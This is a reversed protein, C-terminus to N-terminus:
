IEKTQPYQISLVSPGAFLTLVTTGSRSRGAVRNLTLQPDAPRPKPQLVGCGM